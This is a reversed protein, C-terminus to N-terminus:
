IWRVPVPGCLWTLLVFKEGGSVPVASHLYHSPFVLAKGPEPIATYALGPFSTRGGEFNGNLYCLVTFYRSAFAIESPEDSSDKHPAYGGGSKYRILQTGDCGYLSVGWLERVLPAIVTRVKREFDLYLHRGQEPDLIQASRVEPRVIGRSDGDEVSVRADLWAKAQKVQRITAACERASYLRATFIGPAQEQCGKHEAMLTSRGGAVKSKM